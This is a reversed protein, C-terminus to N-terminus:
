GRVCRYRVAWLVATALVVAYGKAILQGDIYQLSGFAIGLFLVSDVVLGVAGSALMATYFRKRALPAYVAYDAAESVLFAIASALAVHPSAVGWSAIAGVIIAAIAYRAGLERHVVDRLCLAIGAFVVGSPAMIGPWVPILCIRDCVTGLNHITWNAAPITALFAALATWKM